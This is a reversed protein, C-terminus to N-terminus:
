CKWTIKFRVQVVRHPLGLKQGLAECEHRNPTRHNRYFDRLQLVQFHSMQTRQRQQQHHHQQPTQTDGWNSSPDGSGSAQDAMSPGDECPLEECDEEDYDEEESNLETTLSLPTVQPKGATQKNSSVYGHNAVANSLISPGPRDTISTMATQGSSGNCISLAYGAREAEAWHRSRMHADLASKVKFLARCFPCRLHNFGLSFCSGPGTSRFQGKRERARTNQFWVQPLFFFLRRILAEFTSLYTIALFMQDREQVRIM